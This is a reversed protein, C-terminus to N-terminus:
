RSSHVHANGQKQAAGQPQVSGAVIIGLLWAFVVAVLYFKVAAGLMKMM